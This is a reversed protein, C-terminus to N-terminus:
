VNISKKELTKTPALNESYYYLFEFNVNVHRM